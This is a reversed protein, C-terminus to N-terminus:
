SGLEHSSRIPTKTKMSSSEDLWFPFFNYWQLPELLAQEELVRAFKQAYQKLSETRKGRTLKIRDAFLRFRIEYRDGKNLCFLTYVPCKLIAGILYPGHSFRAPEGLFEVVSTRSNIDGARAQIPVRDGVMVIFEGAALKDQLLMATAPTIESVQIMTLRSSEDSKKILQNFKEAHKTHVLINLRLRSNIKSMARMVELNGLHSGIILAGTNNDMLEFFKPQDPFDVHEYRIAGLWTILKDLLGRAFFMFHLYSLRYISHNPLFAQQARVRSLFYMSANRATPSFLFYYLIVPYLILLFPTRGLLRYIAVMIKMGIVTGKEQLGSWHADDTSRDRRRKFRRWLLVPSKTLMTFFLRTHMKTILANDSWNRFHSVGDTPYKVRTSLQKIEGGLWSWRVLVDTDYDM